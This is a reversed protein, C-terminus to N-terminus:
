LARGLRVVHGPHRLVALNELPNEPFLAANAPSGIEFRASRGTALFASTSVADIVQAASMGYDRLKIAEAAVDAPSGILDTGVLVHVGAEVALPLLRAVRELGETFLRGGSSEAGLQALTTECRLVTPVWMGARGGLPGLDEEELFLGHEISQVGAAVALSPVEPAMTHIAVKAGAASATSVATRLEHEDFNSVPGIGRRPWDGSLKVWGAGARAQVRVADELDDPNVELAFDPYYGGVSAIIRAAAEIEPREAAPVVETVQVTTDDTWGKDLLLTVGAPLSLRAREIAGELDGPEYNLEAAALHAHADVLGPLAWMEEGITVDADGSPEAWQGGVVDRM